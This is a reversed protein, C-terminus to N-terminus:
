APEAPLDFARDETTARYSVARLAQGPADVLLVAGSKAICLVGREGLAPDAAAEPKRTTVLCRATTGAVSRTETTFDYTAKAATLNSITRELDTAAFPGIAPPATSSPACTWAGRNQTCAFTGREIVFASRIVEDKRVDLRRRPPDQVLTTVAGAGDDYTVTYSQGGAGVADGILDAVDSGLGAETAVSRAQESREEASKRAQDALGGDRSCGSLAVAVAAVAM